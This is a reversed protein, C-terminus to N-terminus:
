EEVPPEAAAFPRREPCPAFASEGGPLITVPAIWFLHLLFPLFSRGGLGWSGLLFALLSLTRSPRCRVNPANVSRKACNKAAQPRPPRDRRRCDQKPLTRRRAM